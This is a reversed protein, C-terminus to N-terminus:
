GIGSRNLPRFSTRGTLARIRGVRAAARFGPMPEAGVLPEASRACAAHRGTLERVNEPHAAALDKSESPDTALNFREIRQQAADAPHNETRLLDAV